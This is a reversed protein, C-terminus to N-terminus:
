QQDLRLVFADLKDGPALGLEGAFVVDGKIHGGLYVGGDGGVGVGSGQDEDDSGFGYIWIPAGDAADFRGVFADYYGPAAHLEADGFVLDEKFWGGLFLGDGSVELDLAVDFSGGTYGVSWLHSGDGEYGALLVDFGATGVLPEGGFSATESFLGTAYIRGYEDMGLGIIEESGAGGYPNAWLLNGDADLRLLGVDFADGGTDWVEGAEKDITLTHSYSVAVIAHRTQNTVVATGVDNYSGTFSRVWLAEHTVGDVALVFIDDLSFGTAAPDSTAVLGDAEISGAFSGTIFIDGVLSVSVGRPTQKYQGGWTRGWLPAGDLDFAVAYIDTSDQAELLLDGLQLDAMHSGVVIVQGEGDLAIEFPSDANDAGFAHAWRFM